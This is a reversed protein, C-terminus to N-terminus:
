PHSDRRAAQNCVQALTTELAAAAERGGDGLNHRRTLWAATNYTLKVEDREDQWALIKSPLDLGALQRDLMLDTGVLPDGFLILETPRLTLGVHAANAAHDVRAFVHYGAATIAACLREVTDPFPWGSDVTVLDSDDFTANSM